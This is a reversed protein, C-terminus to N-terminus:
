LGAIMGFALLVNEDLLLQTVSNTTTLKKTLTKDYDNIKLVLKFSWM